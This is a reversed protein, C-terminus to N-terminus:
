KVRGREGRRLVTRVRAVLHLTIATQPEPAEVLRGFIPVGGRVADPAETTSSPSLARISPRGAGGSPRMCTGHSTPPRSPRVVFLHPPFTSIWLVSEGM